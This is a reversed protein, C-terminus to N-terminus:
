GIGVAFFAGLARGLPRALAIRGDRVLAVALPTSRSGPAMVADTLGARVVRRRAHGLLYGSGDRGIAESRASWAVVHACPRPACRRPDHENVPNVWVPADQSRIAPSSAVSELDYGQDERDRREGAGSAPEPM